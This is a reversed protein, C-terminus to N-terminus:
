FFSSGVIYSTVIQYITSFFYFVVAILLWPSTMALRLSRMSQKPMNYPLHSKRVDLIFFVLGILVIAIYVLNIIWSGYEPLSVSNAFSLGTATMNVAMHVIIAPLLSNHRMVIKGLFIGLLFALLFQIVNQHALGFLFASFFIGFRQSVRSLNKMIIGRFLIEEGVPALICGYLIQAILFTAGTYAGMSPDYLPIGIYSMINSCFLALYAAINQLFVGIFIYFIARSCRFNKTSFLSALSVKTAKGGIWAAGFNTFTYTLGAIATISASNYIYDLSVGGERMVRFGELVDGEMVIVVIVIIAYALIQSGIFSLFASIGAMNFYHRIRKRERVSPKLPLVWGPQEIEPVLLRYDNEYEPYEMPNEFANYSNIANEIPVSNPVTANSQQSNPEAMVPRDFDSQNSEM